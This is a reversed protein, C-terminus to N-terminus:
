TKQWTKRKQGVKPKQGTKRKQPWTKRKQVIKCKKPWTKKKNQKVNKTRKKTKSIPSCPALFSGSDNIGLFINKLNKAKQKTM